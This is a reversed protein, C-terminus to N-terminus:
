GEYRGGHDRSGRVVDHGRNPLRSSVTAATTASCTQPKRQHPVSSMRAGHPASAGLNSNM